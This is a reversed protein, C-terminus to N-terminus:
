DGGRSAWEGEEGEWRAVKQYSNERTKLLREKDQFKSRKIIIHRVTPRRADILIPIKKVEQVQMDIGRVLDPFNPKM